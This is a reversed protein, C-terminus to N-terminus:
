LGGKSCHTWFGLRHFDLRLGFAAFHIFPESHISKLLFQSDDIIAEPFL